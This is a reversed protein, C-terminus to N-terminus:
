IGHECRAVEHTPALGLAKESIDQHSQDPARSIGDSCFASLDDTEGRKRTGSNRYDFTPTHYKAHQVGSPLREPPAQTMM